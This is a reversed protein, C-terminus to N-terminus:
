SRVRMYRRTVSATVVFAIRILMSAGHPAHGAPRAGARFKTRHLPFYILNRRSYQSTSGGCCGKDGLLFHAAVPEFVKM